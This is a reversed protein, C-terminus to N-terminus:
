RAGPGDGASTTVRPPRGSPLATLRSPTPPRRALWEALGAAGIIGIPGVVQDIERRDVPGSRASTPRAAVRAAIAAATGRVTRCAVAGTAVAAVAQVVAAAQGGGSGFTAVLKGAALVGIKGAAAADAATGAAVAAAIM